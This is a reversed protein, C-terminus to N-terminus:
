ALQNAGPETVVQYNLSGGSGALRRFEDIPDNGHEGAAMGRDVTQDGHGERFFGGALQFKPQARTELLRALLRNVATEFPPIEVEGQGLQFLSPDIRNVPKTGIQQTLTRDFRSDVRPELGHGLPLSLPKVVLREIQPQLFPQLIRGFTHATRQAPSGSGSVLPG